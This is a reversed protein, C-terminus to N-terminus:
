QWLYPYGVRPFRFVFPMEVGGSRYGLYVLIAAYRVSSLRFCLAWLSFLDSTLLIEMVYISVHMISRMCSAMSYSDVLQSNPRKCENGSNPIDGDSVAM